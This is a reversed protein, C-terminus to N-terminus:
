SASRPATAGTSAPEAAGRARHRRVQGGHRRRHHRRVLLWDQGTQVLGIETRLGTFAFFAPLFLVRVM